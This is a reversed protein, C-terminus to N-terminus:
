ESIGLNRLRFIQEAKSGKQALGNTGRSAEDFHRLVKEIEQRTFDEYKM